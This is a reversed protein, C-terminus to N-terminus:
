LTFIFCLPVSFYFNRVPYKVINDFLWSIRNVGARDLYSDAICTLTINSGSQIVQQTVDPIMEITGRRYFAQAHNEKVVSVLVFLIATQIATSVMKHYQFSFFGSFALFIVINDM